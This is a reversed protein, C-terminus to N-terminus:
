ISHPRVTDSWIKISESGMRFHSRLSGGPKEIRARGQSNRLALLSFVRRFLYGFGKDTVAKVSSRHVRRCGDRNGIIHLLKCKFAADTTGGDERLGKGPM